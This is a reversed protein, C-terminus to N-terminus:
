TSAQICGLTCVKGKAPGVQQAPSLNSFAKRAGGHYPAAVLSSKSKPPMQNVGLGKM